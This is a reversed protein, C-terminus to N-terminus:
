SAAMRVDRLLQKVLMNIHPPPMPNQVTVANRTWTVLNNDIFTMIVGGHRNWAIIDITEVVVQNPHMTKVYFISVENNAFRRTHTPWEPPPESEVEQLPTAVAGRLLRQLDGVPDTIGIARLLFKRLNM